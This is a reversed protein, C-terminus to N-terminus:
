YVACCPSSSRFREKLGLTGPDLGPRGVSDWNLGNSPEVEDRNIVLETALPDFEPLEDIWLARRMAEAAYMRSPALRHGYVDMTVRISAHGLTDSVVELPVGMALLLSACSHRLEHISWHGLGPCGRVGFLPIGWNARPTGYGKRSSKPRTRSSSVLRSQKGRPNHPPKPSAGVISPALIFNRIKNAAAMIITDDPATTVPNTPVVPIALACGDLPHGVDYVHVPPSKWVRVKTGM